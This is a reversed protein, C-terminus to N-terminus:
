VDYNGAHITQAAGTYNVANGIATATLTTIASTGGINLIGTAGQTVGGTGALSTSATITGNNTLTVGTVTLLTSSTLKGNNTYAATFTAKPM